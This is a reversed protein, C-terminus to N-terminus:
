GQAEHPGILRRLEFTLRPWPMQLRARLTRPVELFSSSMYPAYSAQIGARAAVTEAAAPDAAFAEASMFRGGADAFALGHWVDLVAWQEEVRAFSLILKENRGPATLVKWHAPVGAYTSLTTFVDAMQDALGHGRIIIHWIHDDIVPWGRPTPRINHRTWEFVVLVRERDSQAGATIEKALLRYHADRHLFDLVKVYRPIHHTSVAFNLGQRTTSPTGMGWWAISAVAGALLCSWLWVRTRREM